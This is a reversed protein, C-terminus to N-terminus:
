AAALIEEAEALISDRLARHLSGKPVLDVKMGLIEELDLQVQVLKFLGIPGDFEVLLDVDSDPQAEGRVLSGFVALSKVGHARLLAENTRIAHGVELKGVDVERTRNYDGSRPITGHIRPPTAKVPGPRDVIERAM